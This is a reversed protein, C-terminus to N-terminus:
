HSIGSVPLNWPSSPSIGKTIKITRSPTLGRCPDLTSRFSQVPLTSIYRRSTGYPTRHRSLEIRRSSTIFTDNGHDWAYYDLRDATFLPKFAEMAISLTWLRRPHKSYAFRRPPSVFPPANSDNSSSFFRAQSNHTQSPVKRHLTRISSYWSM